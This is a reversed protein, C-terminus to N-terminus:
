ASQTRIRELEEAPIRVTRGIRFAKIDGNKIWRRITEDSVGILEALEAASYANRSHEVEFVKM